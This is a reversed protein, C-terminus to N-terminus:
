SIKSIRIENKDKFHNLKKDFCCKSLPLNTTAEFISFTQKSETDRPHKRNIHDQLKLYSIVEDDEALMEENVYSFKKKETLRRVMTQLNMELDRQAQFDMDTNM